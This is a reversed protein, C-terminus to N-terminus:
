TTVEKPVLHQEAYWYLWLADAEHETLQCNPSWAKSTDYLRRAAAEVMAEKGANGKGTAFKKLTTVHVPQLPIGYQECLEEIRTTFGAAIEGAARAKPMFQAREYVVLDVLPSSLSPAWTTERLWRGFRLWRNGSSEGNRVRFDETGWELRSDRNTCWGLKSGPDIALIKM